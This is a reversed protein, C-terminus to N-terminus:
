VKSDFAIVSGRDDRNRIIATMFAAASDVIAPFTDSLSQSRDLALAVSVPSQLNQVFSSIEQIRDNDYVTFDKAALGGVPTGRRDRVAFHVEHLSVFVQQQALVSTGLLSLALVSATAVDRKM